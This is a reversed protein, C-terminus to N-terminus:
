RVLDNEEKIMNMYEYISNYDSKSKMLLWDSKLQLVQQEEVYPHIITIDRDFKERLKAPAIVFLIIFFCCAIASVCAFIIQIITQKQKKILIHITEEEKKSPEPEDYLDLTTHENLVSISEDSLTKLKHETKLIKVFVRLAKGFPIIIPALFASLVFYYTITIILSYSTQTAALTYIVNLVTELISIGIKPATSIFWNGVGMIFAGILSGVAGIIIEHKHNKLYDRM